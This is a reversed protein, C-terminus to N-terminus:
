PSKGFVGSKPKKPTGHNHRAKRQRTKIDDSYGEQQCCEMEKVALSGVAERATTRRGPDPHLMGFLLALMEPDAHFARWEKTSAMKPFPGEKTLQYDAGHAAIFADWTSAYVNYNKHGPSNDPIAEEWATHGLIISIYVIGCSWVDIARPDYPYKHALVEPAMYPKSGVLGPECPTIVADPAVLSPRRCNRLGPHLGSFVESTGFDAIKLCGHKDVLLNESKLDRHAIGRSHLYDVGRILQKFMCNKDQLPIEANNHRVMDNLDGQDCFEMVHHWKTHNDSYCLHYTEVINPHSLSKAIAFESKIKGEYEQRTEESEEWPRFEKVAFVKDKNKGSSVNKSKMKQVAAAGGEGILEKNMRSLLSFYTELRSEEIQLQPIHVSLRRAKSGVGTDVGYGDASKAFVSPRRKAGSSLQRDRPELSSRPDSPEAFHIKSGKSEKRELEAGDELDDTGSVVVAPPPASEGTKGDGQPKMSDVRDVAKIPQAPAESAHLGIPLNAPFSVSSSRRPRHGIHRRFFGSAGSDKTSTPEKTKKPSPPTPLTSTRKAKKVDEPSNQNAM